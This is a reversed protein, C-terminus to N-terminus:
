NKEKEINETAKDCKDNIKKLWLGSLYVVIISSILYVILKGSLLYSFILSAILLIFWRKKKPTISYIIILLPIFALFYTLSYYSKM